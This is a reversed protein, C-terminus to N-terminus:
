VDTFPLKLRPTNKDTWTSIHYTGAIYQFVRVKVYSLLKMSIYDESMIWSLLTYLMVRIRGFNAWHFLYFQEYGVVTLAWVVTTIQTDALHPCRVPLKRKAVRTRGRTAQLIRLFDAVAYCIEFNGRLSPEM